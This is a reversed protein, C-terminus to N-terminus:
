RSVRGRVTCVPRGNAVRVDIEHDGVRVTGGEYAPNRALRVRALVHAGEVAYHRKLAEADAKAAGDVARGRELLAMGLSAALFLLLLAWVLAAGRERRRDRM